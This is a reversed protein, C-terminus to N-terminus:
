YVMLFDHGHLHIPHPVPLSSEISIFVWTEPETTVISNAPLSIKDL